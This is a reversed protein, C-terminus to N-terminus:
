SVDQTLRLLFGVDDQPIAAIVVRREVLRVQLDHDRIRMTGSVFQAIIGPSTFKRRASHDDDVFHIRRRRRVDLRDRCFM